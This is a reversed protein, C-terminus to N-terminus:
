ETKDKFKEKLKSPVSEEDLLSFARNYRTKCKSIGNIRNSLVSKKKTINFMIKIEHPSFNKIMKKYYPLAENSVGYGNGIYCMLVTYVYKKKTKSPIEEQQSLDCLRKAFPPENYFNNYALHVSKLNECADLIIKNRELDNLESLLGLKEFLAKSAKYRKSDGKTQYEYHQSTLKLKIDSTFQSSFYKLIKIANNRTEENSDPDCYIGHLINFLMEKQAEYTKSIKEIWLDLQPKKFIGKKLSKIFQKTDVGEPNNTNSLAYKICRSIFNILERDDILGITPHAASFNNRLDRNRDLFYFGEESILNLELCIDLIEADKKSDLKDEDFDEDKIQSIVNLGFNKIKNKLNIISANWIYNIAGDFLGSYIAICMRVLLEDRLDVPVQNIERPLSNWVYQIEEKSAIINRSEGFTDIIKDIHSLQSNNLIPLQTEQKSM